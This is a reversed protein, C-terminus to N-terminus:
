LEFIFECPDISWFYICQNYALEEDDSSLESQIM